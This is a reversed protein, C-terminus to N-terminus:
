APVKFLMWQVSILFSAIYKRLKFKHLTTLLQIKLKTLGKGVKYFSNEFMAKVILIEIETFNSSDNLQFLFYEDASHFVGGDHSVKIQSITM